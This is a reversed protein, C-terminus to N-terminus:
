NNVIKEVQQNSIRFNNKVWEKEISKLKEGLQKGAPIEYKKMLLDANIPMIPLESNEYHKALETLFNDIKKSKIIRHNIIDIATEKGHYYFVKNM